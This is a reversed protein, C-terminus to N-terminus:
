KPSLGAAELLELEMDNFVLDLRQIRSLSLGLRIAEESNVNIFGHCSPCVPLYYASCVLWFDTRQYRHHVESAVHMCGSLQAQCVGNNSLYDKRIVKYIDTLSARKVSFKPIHVVPVEVVPRLENREYGGKDTNIYYLGMDGDVSTIVGRKGFPGIVEMGPVLEVNAGSSRAASKEAYGIMACEKCRGKSFIPRDLHKCKHKGM